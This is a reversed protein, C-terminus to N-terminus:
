PQWGEDRLVALAEVIQAQLDALDRCMTDDYGHWAAYRPCDAVPAACLAAADSAHRLVQAIDGAVLADQAATMNRDCRELQRLWEQPGDAAPQRSPPAGGCAALLLACVVAAAAPAIARRAAVAWGGGEGILDAGDIATHAQRAM